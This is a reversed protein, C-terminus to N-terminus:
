KNSTNILETNIIDEFDANDISPNDTISTNILETNISDEFDVEDINDVEGSFPPLELEIKHIDEYTYEDININDDIKTTIIDSDIFDNFELEDIIKDIDIPKSPTIIEIDYTDIFKLGDSMKRNGLKEPASEDTLIDWEFGAPILIYGPAEIILPAEIWVDEPYLSPIWFKIDNWGPELRVPYKVGSDIRIWIIQSSDSWISGGGTGGGTGGGGAVSPFPKDPNTNYVIQGSYALVNMIAM